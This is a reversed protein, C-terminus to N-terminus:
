DGYAVRQFDTIVVLLFGCLPTRQLFDVRDCCICPSTKEMFAM